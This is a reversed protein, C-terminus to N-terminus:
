DFAVRVTGIGAFEAEWREGARLDVKSFSGTIVRMGAALSEGYEALTNALDPQELMEGERLM